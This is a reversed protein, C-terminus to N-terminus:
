ETQRDGSAAQPVASVWAQQLLQQHKELIIFLGPAVFGSTWSSQVAGLM